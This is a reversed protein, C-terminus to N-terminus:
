STRFQLSLVVRQEMLTKVPLCVVEYQGGEYPTGEPGLFTGKLHFLDDNIQEIKINSSKDNQCDILTIIWVLYLDIYILPRSRVKSRRLSVDKGLM